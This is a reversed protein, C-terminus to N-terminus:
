AAVRRPTPQALAAYLSAMDAAMRAPTFRAARDRAREGLELRLRTDGIFTTVAEAFGRDDGPAVFTAADGWIERFTPIDSLVLACGAAAAELVALGFPEYRATSVFVPRAALCGAIADAGVQGIAHVHALDIQEGNPGKLSGAAKVPIGLRAAARDLAALDKGRDWLRGATFAFDHMAAPPPAAVRRGNLVARPPQALGYARQTATAFAVSPCVVAQAAQLGEMHLRARWAFDEPPIGGEVADWWTLLCSHSAVVVPMVFAARAALAPQNLQVLDAGVRDALAAIQAGAEIVQAAADALWDLPLGTEVVSLGEVAKAEARQEASCSPGLVALTTQVGYPGLGAALDLAYQWVGGVADATMLLRLPARRM